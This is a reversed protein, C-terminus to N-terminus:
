NVALYIFFDLGGMEIKGQSSLSFHRVDTIETFNHHGSRDQITKIAVPIKVSDGEPIWFGQPCLLPCLKMKLCKLCLYFLAWLTNCYCTKSFMKWHM